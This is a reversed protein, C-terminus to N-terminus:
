AIVSVGTLTRWSNIWQCMTERYESATQKHQHPHFHGRIPEFASLFLQAHGASKFLGWEGNESVPQDISCSWRKMLRRLLGPKPKPENLVARRVSLPYSAIFIIRLPWILPASLPSTMPCIENMLWIKPTTAYDSPHHHSKRDEMVEQLLATKSPM